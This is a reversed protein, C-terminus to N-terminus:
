DPKARPWGDTRPPPGPALPVNVPLPGMDRRVKFVWSRRGPSRRRTEAPITEAPRFSVCNKRQVRWCPGRAPSFDSVAKKTSRAPFPVASKGAALAPPPRGHHPPWAARPGSCPDATIRLPRQPHRPEPPPTGMVRRPKSAVAPWPVTPRNKTSAARGPRFPPARGFRAHACKENPLPGCGPPLRNTLPRSLGNAPSKV